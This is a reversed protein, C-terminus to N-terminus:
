RHHKTTYHHKPLTATRRMVPAGILGDLRQLSTEGEPGHVIGSHKLCVETWKRLERILFHNTILSSLCVILEYSPMLAVRRRAAPTRHEFRLFQSPPSSETITLHGGGRDSM